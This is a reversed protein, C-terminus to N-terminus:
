IYGGTDTHIRGVCEAIDKTWLGADKLMISWVRECPHGLQRHIHWLKLFLKHGDEPLTKRNRGLRAKSRRGGTQEEWEEEKDVGEENDWKEVLGEITEM